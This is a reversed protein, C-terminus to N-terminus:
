LFARLTFWVFALILIVATVWWVPKIGGPRISTGFENKVFEGYDFSDDPLDASDADERWGSRHDAGCEPCALAGRPVSEGCVPCVAPTRPQRPSNLAM